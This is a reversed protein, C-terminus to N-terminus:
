RKNAETKLLKESVLKEHLKPRQTKIIEAISNIPELYKTTPKYNLYYEVFDKNGYKKEITKVIRYVLDDSLSDNAAVLHLFYPKSKAKRDRDGYKFDVDAGQRILFDVINEIKLKDDRDLGRQKAAWVIAPAYGAPDKANVDAKLVKLAYSIESLKGEKCARVYYTNIEKQSLTKGNVAVM